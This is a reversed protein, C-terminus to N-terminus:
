CYQGGLFNMLQEIHFKLLAQNQSRMQSFVKPGSRRVPSKFPERSLHRNKPRIGILM